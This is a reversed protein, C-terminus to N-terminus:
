LRGGPTVSYGAGGTSNYGGSGVNQSESLNESSGLESRLSPISNGNNVVLEEFDGRRRLMISPHLGQQKLSKFITVPTENLELPREQDSYCIVLVYQRWDKENLNHRKMANKLIKECSDEKSARLQKLPENTAPNQAYEVHPASMSSPLRPKQTTPTSVSVSSNSHSKHQPHQFTRGTPSQADTPSRPVPSQAIPSLSRNSITNHRSLTPTHMGAFTPQNRPVETFENGAPPQAQRAKVVDLIESRLRSYQSSYDQLKQNLTTYLNQLVVTLEEDQSSIADSAGPIDGITDVLKNVCLRLRVADPTSGDCLDKYDEFSIDPLLDGSIDNDIINAIIPHDEPIELVSACWRAVGAADWQTYDENNM